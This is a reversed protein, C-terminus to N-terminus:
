SLLLNRPRAIELLKLDLDKSETRAKQDRLTTRIKTSPKRTASEPAGRRWSGPTPNAYGRRVTPWLSVVTKM